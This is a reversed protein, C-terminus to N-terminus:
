AATGQGCSGTGSSALTWVAARVVAHCYLHVRFASQHMSVPTESHQIRQHTKGGTAPARRGGQGDGGDSDRARASWPVVRADRGGAGGRGRWWCLLRLLLSFHVVSVVGRRKRDHLAPLVRVRGGGGGPAGRAGLRAIHDPAFLLLLLLWCRGVVSSYGRSGLLTLVGARLPNTRVLWLAM